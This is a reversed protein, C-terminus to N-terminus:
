VNDNHQQNLQEQMTRVHKAWISPENLLVYIFFFPALVIQWGRLRAVIKAAYYLRNNM